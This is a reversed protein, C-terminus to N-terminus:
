PTSLYEGLVRYAAPDRMLFRHPWSDGPVGNSTFPIFAGLNAGHSHVPNTIAEFMKICWMMHEVESGEEKDTNAELVWPETHVRELEHGLAWLLRNYDEGDKHLTEHGYGYLHIGGGHCRNYADTCLRAWSARGPEAPQHPTIRRHTWGPSVVKVGSDYLADAVRGVAEAHAGAKGAWHQWVGFPFNGWGGKESRATRTLDYEHEPENGVTVAEIDAFRQYLNLTACIAEPGREHYYSRPDMYAMQPSPEEIRLIVRVGREGLNVLADMHEQVMWFHLYARDVGAVALNNLDQEDPPQPFFLAWVDRAPRHTM